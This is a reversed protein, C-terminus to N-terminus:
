MCGLYTAKFSIVSYFSAHNYPTCLIYASVADTKHPVVWTVVLHHKLVGSQNYEFHAIFPLQYRCTGMDIM